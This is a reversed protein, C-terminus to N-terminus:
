SVRVRPDLWAYSMDVTLNVLVFLAGFFIVFLQIVPYDRLLLANIIYQGLGPLSYIQEVIM